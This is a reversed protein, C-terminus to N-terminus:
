SRSGASAIRSDLATDFTPPPAALETVLTVQTPTLGLLLRRGEVTVIVLSRRDGLPAASEIAIGNQRRAGPLRLSGRRALWALTALLGLVFVVAAFARLGGAGPLPDLAPAAQAILLSTV